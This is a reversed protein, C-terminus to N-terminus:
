VKFNDEIEKIFKEGYLQANKVAREYTKKDNKLSEQVVYNVTELLKDKIDKIQKTTLHTKGLEIKIMVERVFEEYYNDYDIIYGYYGLSNFAPTENYADMIAAANEKAVADKKNAEILKVKTADIKIAALFRVNNKILKKIILNKSYLIENLKAPTPLGILRNDVREPADDKDRYADWNTRINQVIQGKEVDWGRNILTVINGDYCERILLNQKIFNWLLVLKMEGKTLEYPKDGGIWRWGGAIIEYDNNLSYVWDTPWQGTADIIDNWQKVQYDFQEEETTFLKKNDLTFTAERVERFHAPLRNDSYIEQEDDMDADITGNIYLNWYALMRDLHLGRGTMHKAWIRKWADWTILEAKYKTFAKSDDYDVAAGGKLWELEDMDREDLPKKLNQFYWWWAADEHIVKSEKYSKKYWAKMYAGNGLTEFGDWSIVEKLYDDVKIGGYQWYNALSYYFGDDNNFIRSTGSFYLPAADPLRVKKPFQKANFVVTEAAMKDKKTILYGGGLAAIGAVIATKKSVIFDSEKM